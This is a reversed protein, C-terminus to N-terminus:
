HSDAFDQKKFESDVFFVGEKVFKTGANINSVVLSIEGKKVVDLEIPRFHNDAEQVYVVYRGESNQITAALPINISPNSDSLDIKSNVFEGVHLLDAKNDMEIRIIRTRTRKDIEHQLSIVKGELRIGNKEIFVTTGVTIDVEKNSPINADIWVTDENVVKFLLDGSNVTEGAVIDTKTITGSIPALLELLNDAKEAKIFIDLQAKGLGYTMLKAYLRDFEVKADQVGKKSTFKDKYLRTKRRKEQAALILQAKTDAIESSSLIVLSDGKKVSQGESVLRKEVQSQIRASVLAVNDRNVIVEGPLTISKAAVTPQIIATKIGAEKQQEPSIQLAVAEDHGQEKQASQVSFSILCFAFLQLFKHFM